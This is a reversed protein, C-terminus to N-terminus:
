SSTSWLEPSSKRTTCSVGGSEAQEIVSMCLASTGPETLPRCRITGWMPGGAGLQGPAPHLDALDEVELRALLHGSRVGGM